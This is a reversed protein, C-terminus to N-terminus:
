EALVTGRGYALDTLRGWEVMLERAADSQDQDSLVKARRLVELTEEGHDGQIRRWKEPTLPRSSIAQMEFSHFRQRAETPADYASTSPEIDAM